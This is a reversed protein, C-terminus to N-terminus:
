RGVEHLRQLCWFRVELHPTCAFREVCLRWCDPSAAVSAVYAEAQEQKHKRLAPRPPPPSARHHADAAVARALPPPPPPPPPPVVPRAHTERRSHRPALSVSSSTLGM